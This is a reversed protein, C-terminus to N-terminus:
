WLILLSGPITWHRSLAATGFGIPDYSLLCLVTRKLRSVPTRDGEVGDEEETSPIKSIRPHPTTAVYFAEMRKDHTRDGDGAGDERPTACDPLAGAKPAPQRRNSDPWGSWRESIRIKVGRHLRTLSLACLLLPQGPPFVDHHHSLNVWRPFRWEPGLRSLSAVSRGAGPHAARRSAM